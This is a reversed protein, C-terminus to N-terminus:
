FHTESIVFTHIYSLFTSLSANQLHIWSINSTFIIQVLIVFIQLIISFHALHLLTFITFALPAFITTRLQFLPCPGKSRVGQNAVTKRFSCHKRFLSHPISDSLCLHFMLTYRTVDYLYWFSFCNAQLIDPELLQCYISCIVINGLFPCTVNMYRLCIRPWLLESGKAKWKQM